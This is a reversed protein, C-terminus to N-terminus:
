PCPVKLVPANSLGREMESLDEDFFAYAIFKFRLLGPSALQQGNDKPTNM